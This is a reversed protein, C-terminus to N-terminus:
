RTDDKHIRKSEALRSDLRDAFQSELFAVLMAVRHAEEPSLSGDDIPPHPPPGPFPIITATSM